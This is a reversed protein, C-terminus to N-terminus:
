SEALVVQGSNDPVQGSNDPVQGSKEPVQVSKETFTQQSKLQKFSSLRDRNIPFYQMQMLM